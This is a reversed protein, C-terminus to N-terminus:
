RSALDAVRKASRYVPADIMKGDIECVGGAAREYAEVVRRAAAAEDPSPTFVRLIPRVQRPHVALKATYGLAKSRRTEEILAADDADRLGPYPVDWAVVGAVAAARVVHARHCLMPEWALDAGLDAALDMGGFALAAVGPAGAIQEAWRLGRATEVFPVLPVLAVGLVRALLRLEAPHESKPVLIADPRAGSAALASVDSFGAATGLSNIRVCRLFEGDQPASRLYALVHARAEDKRGAAVADELDLIQGDAGTSQAKAFRDPRDGPTFLLTRVTRLETRPM